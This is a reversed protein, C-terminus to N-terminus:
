PSSLLDRIQALQVPDDWDKMGVTELLVEGKPSILFSTPLIRTGWKDAGGHIQVFNLQYDQRQVFPQLVSLDEESAALVIIGEGQLAEAMRELDPMEELCPKCWTAWLNLFVYKEQYTLPAIPEGTM